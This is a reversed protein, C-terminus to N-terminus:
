RNEGGGPRPAVGCRRQVDGWSRLIDQLVQESRLSAGGQLLLGLAERRSSEQADIPRTPPNTKM